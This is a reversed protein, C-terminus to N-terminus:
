YDIALLKNKVNILDGQKGHCGAQLLKIQKDIRYNQVINPSIYTHLSPLAFCYVSLGAARM